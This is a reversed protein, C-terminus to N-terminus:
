AQGESDKLAELYEAQVRKLMATAQSPSLADVDIEGIEEFIFGSGLKGTRAKNKKNHKYYVVPDEDGQPSLPMGIDEENLEELIDNARSLIDDPLGALRAVHIGYSRDTGGRVIKRLFVIDEGIEQVLVSYNKVGGSLKNELETLEHYHTACLTKAGIRVAIYEIVAWAISLGDFTSTGRGIEDLVILSNKTANNTINAVETMEMMFTSQGTALDDSAGVRTFLKDVVSIHASDAPVFSGMQAMLVILAVQRMYTSKGAMNPGTIIAVKNDGQDLVTDNPVFAERSLREIVPHRGNVISLKGDGSILPKRYSYLDAIEALSNLVDITAIMSSMLQIRPLAESLVNLIEGFIEREIRIIHEDASLIVEEVERLEEITYRECNALTQRRIYHDPVIGLNSNTIEIYYGFVKNYKIRLNKIGTEERQKTEIQMLWSAGDNKAARYKDLEASVGDKIFGSDSLNAPPNETIKASILAHIDAMIDFNNHIEQSLADNFSGLISKIRPFNTFSNKLNVTDRPTAVRMVIKGALREFDHISGLLERFEGRAFIDNKFREVSDLRREIATKERLPQQVWKRLQRAGMATRTKDLVWLLSNKKSLERMNQTLELNRRTSSDMELHNETSHRVVRKIHTLASKLSGALYGVLAGSARVSLDNKDIGFSALSTVGLQATLTDHANRKDFHFNTLVQPKIGLLETARKSYLFSENVLLESPALRALEDLMSNARDKDFNCVTFEGTTVDAYALAFGKDKDDEYVCAIYNNKESDLAATDLVTGATVVRIVERKVLKKTKDPAETQECIAVKYGKEILQNIYGAASHHPVGCMPAREGGNDRGTLTIDLEKAALIADDFFLEYFDGMRYMLLCDKYDKKINHYQEMMPTLKPKDSM